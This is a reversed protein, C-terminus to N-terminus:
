RACFQNSAFFSFYGIRNFCKVHLFDFGYESIEIELCCYDGALFQRSPQGALQKDVVHIFILIAISNSIIHGDHLRTELYRLIPVGIDIIVKTRVSLADNQLRMKKFQFCMLDWVCRQKYSVEVVEQAVSSHLNIEM